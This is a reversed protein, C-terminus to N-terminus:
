WLYPELEVKMKGVLQTENNKKITTIMIEVKKLSLVEWQKSDLCEAENIERTFSFGRHFLLSCFQM